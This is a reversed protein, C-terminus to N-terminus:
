SLVLLLTYKIYRLRVIYDFSIYSFADCLLM